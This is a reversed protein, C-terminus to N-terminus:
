GEKTPPSAKGTSGRWSKPEYFRGEFLVPDQMINGSSSCRYERRKTIAVTGESSCTWPTGGPVEVKFQVLKLQYSVVIM